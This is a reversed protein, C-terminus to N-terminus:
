LHGSNSLIFILYGLLSSITIFKFISLGISWSLKKATTLQNKKLEEIQTTLQEIQLRLNEQSTNSNDIITSITNKFQNDCLQSLENSSVQVNKDFTKLLNESDKSKELLMWLLVPLFDYDSDQNKTFNEVSPSLKHELKQLIQQKEM